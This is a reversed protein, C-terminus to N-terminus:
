GIMQRRTTQAASLTAPSAAFLHDPSERNPKLVTFICMLLSTRKSYSSFLLALARVYVYYNLSTLSSFCYLRRSNQKGSSVPCKRM